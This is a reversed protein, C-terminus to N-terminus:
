SYEKLSRVAGVFSKFPPSPDLPRSKFEPHAQYAIFYPHLSKKLEVIEVRNEDEVSVASVRLGASELKDIYDPNVEYRHRHREYVIYNQYVNYALTNPFVKIPLAGLRM